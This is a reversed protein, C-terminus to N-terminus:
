QGLLQADSERPFDCSAALSIQFPLPPFTCSLANSTVVLKRLNLFIISEWFSRGRFHLNTFAWCFFFPALFALPAYLLCCFIFTLLGMDNYVWFRDQFYKSEGCAQFQSLYYKAHHVFALTTSSKYGYKQATKTRKPWTIVVHLGPPSASPYKKPPYTSGLVGPQCGM